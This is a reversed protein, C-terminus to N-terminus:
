KIIQLKFVFNLIGGIAMAFGPIQVERCLLNGSGDFLGWETIQLGALATLSGTVQYTDSAVSTTVLQTAGVARSYGGTIDENELAIDTIAPATIGTGWGINLPESLLGKIRSSVIALGKNTIIKAM